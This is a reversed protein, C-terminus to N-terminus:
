SCLFNDINTINVHSFRNCSFLFDAVFHYRQPVNFQPGRGNWNSAQGVLSVQCIGTLTDKFQREEHVM